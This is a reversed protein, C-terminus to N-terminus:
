RTPLTKTTRTYLLGRYRIWLCFIATRTFLVCSMKRKFFDNKDNKKTELLEDSIYLQVTDNEALKYSPEARKNCVKIRKKRVAGCIYGQTLKPFAKVLFRDLRQGADNRLIVIEKM